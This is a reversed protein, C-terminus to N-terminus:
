SLDDTNIKCTAGDIVERQDLLHFTQVEIWCAGSGNKVTITSPMALQETGKFLVTSCLPGLSLISSKNPHSVQTMFIEWEPSISRESSAFRNSGELRQWRWSAIDIESSMLPASLEQIMQEHRRITEKNQELTPIYRHAQHNREEFVDEISVPM